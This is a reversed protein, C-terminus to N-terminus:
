FGTRMRGELVIELEVRTVGIPAYTKWSTVKHKTVWMESLVIRGQRNTLM